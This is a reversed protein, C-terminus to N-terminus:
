AVAPGVAKSIANIQGNANTVTVESFIYDGVDSAQLTYTPGNASTPATQPQIPTCGSSSFTSTPCDWWMYTTTTPINGTITWSGTTTTLTQGQTATGTISPAATNAPASGGGTPPGGASARVGVDLGDTGANHGTSGSTLEFGAWTTPSAGGVFTPTGSINPSSAGSWMNHTNSTLSGSEANPGHPDLNNTYTEGSPASDGTKNSNMFLTSSTCRQVNALIACYSPDAGGAIAANHNVVSGSDSYLEICNQEIDFCANDTITNNSTGDFAAICNYDDSCLNGTFTIGGWPSNSGSYVQLGDIHNCSGADTHDLFGVIVNNEISLSSMTEMARNPNWLDAPAVLVSNELTVGSPTTATATKYMLLFAAGLTTPSGGSCAANGDVFSDRNFVINSNEPGVILVSNSSATFALNQFTLNLAKSQLADGSTEMDLQGGVTMTGGGATGDLTFNQVNSLNLTIGSNFTVTAGPASTITIGPAAKSTGTFGTYNGSALCVTQGPTAAAIQSAYNATTANLSCSAGGGGSSVVATAASTAPTSGNANSATVVVRITDGVDGGQLTYSNSMAGSINVCSGGSTSCDQWQYAYSTPSGSWSGNSANLTYGQQATGSIV